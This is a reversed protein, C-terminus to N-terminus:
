KGRKGREGGGQRRTSRIEDMAVNKATNVILRMAMETNLGMCDEGGKAFRFMWGGSPGQMEYSPGLPAWWVHEISEGIAEAMGVRLAEALASRKESKKNSSM